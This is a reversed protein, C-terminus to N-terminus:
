GDCVPECVAPVFAKYDCKGKSICPSKCARYLPRHCPTCPRLGRKRPKWCPQCPTSPRRICEVDCNGVEWIGFPGRARYAGFPRCPGYPRGAYRCSGALPWPRM